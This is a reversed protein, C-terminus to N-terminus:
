LVCVKDTITCRFVEYRLMRIRATISFFNGRAAFQLM